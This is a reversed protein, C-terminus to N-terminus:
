EVHTKNLLSKVLANGMSIFFILTNTVELVSYAIDVEESYFSNKTKFEALELSGFDLNFALENTRSGIKKAIGYLNGNTLIELFFLCLRSHQNLNVHSYNQHVLTLNVSIKM